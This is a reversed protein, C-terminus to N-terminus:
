FNNSSISGVELFILDFGLVFILSFLLVSLIFIVPLLSSDYLTRPPNM